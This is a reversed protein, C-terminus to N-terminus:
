SFAKAAFWISSGKYCRGSVFTADLLKKRILQFPSSFANNEEPFFFPVKENDM